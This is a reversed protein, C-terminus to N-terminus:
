LWLEASRKDASFVVATYIYAAQFAFVGERPQPPDGQQWLCLEWINIPTRSRINLRLICFSHMLLVISHIQEWVVLLSPSLLNLLM